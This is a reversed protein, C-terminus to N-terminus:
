LAGRFEALLDKPWPHAAIYKEIRQVREEPELDATVGARGLFAIVISRGRDNLQMLDVRVSLVLAALLDETTEKSWAPSELVNSLRAILSDVEREMQEKLLTM